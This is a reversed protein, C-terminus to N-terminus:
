KKSSTGGLKERWWADTRMKPPIEPSDPELHERELIRFWQARKSRPLSNGCWPCYRIQMFEDDSRRVLVGYEDYKPIYTVAYEGAGLVFSMKRCCHPM